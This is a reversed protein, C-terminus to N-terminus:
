CHQVRLTCLEIQSLALYALLVALLLAHLLLWAAASLAARTPCAGNFSAEWYIGLQLKIPDSAGFAFVACNGTYYRCVHLHSFLMCCVGNCCCSAYEPHDGLYAECESRLVDWLTSPTEIDVYVQALAHHTLLRLM